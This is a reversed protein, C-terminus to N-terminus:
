MKEPASVGLIRLANSLVVLISKSLLLRAKSLGEEDSLVKHKN